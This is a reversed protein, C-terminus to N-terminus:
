TSNSLPTHVLVGLFATLAITLEKGVAGVPVLPEVQPVPVTIREAEDEDVPVKLHYSADDPPLKNAVLGDVADELKVVGVIDAFM